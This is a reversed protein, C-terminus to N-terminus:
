CVSSSALSSLMHEEEEIWHHLPEGVESVCPAVPFKNCMGAGQHLGVSWSHLQLLTQFCRPERAHPGYESFHEERICLFFLVKNSLWLSSGCIICPQPTSLFPCQWNTLFILSLASPEWDPGPLPAPSSQFDSPCRGSAICWRPSTDLAKEGHRVSVCCTCLESANHINM